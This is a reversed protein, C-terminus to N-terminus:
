PSQSHEGNNQAVLSNHRNFVLTVANRSCVGTSSDDYTNVPIPSSVARGISDELQGYYYARRVKAPNELLISRTPTKNVVTREDLGGGWIHLVYGDVPLKGDFVQADVSSWRCSTGPAYAIRDITLPLASTGPKDPSPSCTATRLLPDFAGATTSLPRVDSGKENERIKAFYGMAELMEAQREKVDSATRADCIKAQAFDWRTENLGDWDPNEKVIPETVLPRLTEVAEQTRGEALLVEGLTDTVTMEMETMRNSDPRRLCRAIRVGERAHAEALSAMQADPPSGTRGSLWDIEWEWFTYAYRNLAIVFTPDLEIAAQYENLARRYYGEAIEKSKSRGKELANHAKDDLNEALMFRVHPDTALRKMSDMDNADLYAEATAANCKVNAEDPDLRLSERYYRLAARTTRSGLNRIQSISGDPGLDKEDIARHWCSWSKPSKPRLAITDSRDVPLVTYEGHRHYDLTMGLFNLIKAQLKKEDPDLRQAASLRLFLAQARSCYFYPVYLRPRGDEDKVEKFDKFTDECIGLYASRRQRLSTMGRPLQAIRVWIKLAESSNLISSFRDAIAPAPPYYSTFNSITEAQMSAGPVFDANEATSERFAVLARRPEGYEQLAVGLRYYAFAFGRDQRISEEFCAIANKLEGRSRSELYCSWHKLGHRLYRFATWNRTLGASIFSADSSAIRFAVQEILEAVPELHGSNDSRCESSGMEEQATLDPEKEQGTPDPKPLTSVEMWNDGESSNVLVAFRGDGTPKINGEIVKTNMMSRVLRKIPAFFISTPIKVGSVQLDDNKAIASDLSDSDPGANPVRAGALQEHFAPRGGWRPVLTDPQLDSRLRGLANVLGLSFEQSIDEKVDSPGTWHFSGVVIPRHNMAEDLAALFGLGVLVFAFAIISAMAAKLTVASPSGQSLSDVLSSIQRKAGACLTAFYEWGKKLTVLQLVGNKIWRPFHDLAGQVIHESLFIWLSFLIAVELTRNLYGISFLDIVSIAVLPLVLSFVLGSLRKILFPKSPRKVTQQGHVPEEAVPTAAQESLVAQGAEATKPRQDNDAKPAAQNRINQTIVTAIGALLPILPILGLLCRGFDSMPVFAFGSAIVASVLLLGARLKKNPSDWFLFALAGVAVVFAGREVVTWMLSSQSDALDQFRLAFRGMPALLAASFAICVVLDEAHSIALISGAFCITVWVVMPPWWIDYLYVRLEEPDGPNVAHLRTVAWVGLLLAPLLFLWLHPQERNLRRVGFWCLAPLSPALLLAGRLWPTSNGQTMIAGFEVGLVIGGTLLGVTFLIVIGALILDLFGISLTRKESFFCSGGQLVLALTIALSLSLGLSDM